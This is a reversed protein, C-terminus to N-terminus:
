KAARKAMKFLGFGLGCLGGILFVNLPFETFLSMCQKALNITETVTGTDINTTSAAALIGFM